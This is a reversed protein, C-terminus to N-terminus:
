SGDPTSPYAISSEDQGLFEVAAKEKLIVVEINKRSMEPDSGVYIAKYARLGSKKYTGMFESRILEFDWGYKRFSQPIKM